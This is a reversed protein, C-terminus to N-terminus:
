GHIPFFYDLLEGIALLLMAIIALWIHILFHRRTWPDLEYYREYVGAKRARSPFMSYTTYEQARLIQTLWSDDDYNWGNLHYDVKPVVKKCIFFTYGIFAVLLVFILLAIILGVADIISM